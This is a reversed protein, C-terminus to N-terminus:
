VNDEFARAAERVAQRKERSLPILGVDTLYGESGVARESTFEEVFEEIGPIMGVHAKKVYFLLPRSVPYEQAAIKEFTPEVGDIGNGQIKDRNQDLFSFGFIGLADANADLKQVILNDNEGAEIYAGDERIGHCLAKFRDEDTDELKEVWPFETCGAEMVLEVFADRTGSTPPPGYVEIEKDPLNSDIENWRTYPNAEITGKETPIEKALALYLETRSLDYEPGGKANAVVIGDYGINVETIEEIGNAACTDIESQKVARSANTIDPHEVGIGACFLKFGGGSGTSEVVPTKYDSTRGFREAVKTSFPFVTSSGVIRIEDRAGGGAALAQGGNESPAVEDEVPPTEGTQCALGLAATLVLPWALLRRALSSGTSRTSPSSSSRM